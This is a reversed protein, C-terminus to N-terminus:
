RKYKNNLWADQWEKYVEINLIVSQRSVNEGFRLSRYIMQMTTETYQPIQIATNIGAALSIERARFNFSIGSEVKGFAYNTGWDYLFKDVGKNGSLVSEQKRWSLNFAAPTSTRLLLPLYLANAAIEVFNLDEIAETGADNWSKDRFYRNFLTKTALQMGFDMTAGKMMMQWTVGRPYLMQATMNTVNRLYSANRLLANSVAQYGVAGAQELTDFMRAAIM